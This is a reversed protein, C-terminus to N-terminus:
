APLFFRIKSLLDGAQRKLVELAPLNERDEIPILIVDVTHLRVVLGTGLMSKATACPSGRRRVELGDQWDWM